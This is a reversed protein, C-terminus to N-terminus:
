RRKAQSDKGSQRLTLSEVAGEGNLKFIVEVEVAKAFFNAPSDPYIPVPEQGPLQLLLSDSNRLISLICDPRLEYDGIVAEYVKPDIGAPTREAPLYDPWDYEKAVARLIEDMLPHGQNSNLMVVAGFGQDQYATMKAVFGEDWGGHGFRVAGGIGELFVGLGVAPDVQATFMEKVTTASLLINSEGAKARQLELAFRALDSATTWLGAAAIEPYTHWGGELPKANKPHATAASSWYKEPLPQEYTSDNMGLPGFILENAIQPFPKGLVDILTQQVITTGGGSYRHQVGPLINVRVAATNAPADGNLVQVSSPIPEGKAYGPFGHVTLGGTHSLLQRLTVKPQWGDNAPVKWSTLYRNVDEDLDLKGAEVMLLAAAAAVPKSISGAQFLTRTTVIVPLGAEKVGFGRAWEVHGGNIVAVSVGPTKHYSMREALTAPIATEGPARLELVLNNVISDIRTEIQPSFSPATM